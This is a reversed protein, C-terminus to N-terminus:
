VVSCRGFWWGFWFKSETALAFYGNVLPALTHILPPQWTLSQAIWKNYSSGNVKLTPLPSQWAPRQARTSQLPSVMTPLYRACSNSIRTRIKPSWPSSTHNSASHLFFFATTITSNGGCAAHANRCSKLGDRPYCVYLLKNPDCSRIDFCGEYQTYVVNEQIICTWLFPM